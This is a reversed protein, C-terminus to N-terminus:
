EDNVGFLEAIENNCEDIDHNDAIYKMGNFLGLKIPRKGESFRDAFHESVLTEKESSTMLDSISELLINLKDDSMGIIYKIVQVQLKSM